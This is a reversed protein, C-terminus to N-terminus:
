KINTESSYANTGLEINMLKENNYVLRDLVNRIFGKEEEGGVVKTIVKYARIVDDLLSETLLDDYYVLGKSCQYVAGRCGRLQSRNSYSMKAKKISSISALDHEQINQGCFCKIDKPEVLDNEVKYQFRDVEYEM